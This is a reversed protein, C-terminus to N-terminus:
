RETAIKQVSALAVLALALLEAITRIIHFTWWEDRLSAWNDPPQEARWTLM